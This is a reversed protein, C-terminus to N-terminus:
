NSGRLLNKSCIFFEVLTGILAWASSFILNAQSFVLWFPYLKNSSDSNIHTYPVHVHKDKHVHIHTICMHIYIGTYTDIYTDKHMNAYVCMYICM